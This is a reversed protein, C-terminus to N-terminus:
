YKEHSSILFLIAKVPAVDMFMYTCFIINIARSSYKRIAFVLIYYPNHFSSHVTGDLYSLEKTFIWHPLCCVFQQEKIGSIRNKYLTSVIFIATGSRQCLLVGFDLLVKDCCSCDKCLYEVIIRLIIWLGEVLLYVLFVIQLPIRM